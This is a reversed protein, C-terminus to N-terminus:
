SAAVYNLFLGLSIRQPSLVSKPSLKNYYACYCYFSRKEAVNAYPVIYMSQKLHLEKVDLKHM